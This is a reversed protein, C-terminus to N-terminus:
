VRRCAQEVVDHAWAWTWAMGDDDNSNHLLLLHILSGVQSKFENIIHNQNASIRKVENVYYLANNTNSGRGASVHMGVNM